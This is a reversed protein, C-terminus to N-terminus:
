QGLDEKSENRIKYRLYLFGQSSAHESCWLFHNKLGSIPVNKKDYLALCYINKAKPAMYARACNSLSQVLAAKIHLNFPHPQTGTVSFVSSM